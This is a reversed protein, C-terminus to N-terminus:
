GAPGGCPEGGGRWTKLMETLALVLETLAKIAKVFTTGTWGSRRKKMVLGVIGPCRLAGWPDRHARRARSRSERSWSVTGYLCWRARPVSGPAAFLM